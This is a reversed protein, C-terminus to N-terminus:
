DELRNWAVVSGAAAVIVLLWEGILRGEFSLPLVSKAADNTDFSELYAIPNVFNLAVVLDHLLWPLHLSSLGVLLLGFAWILGAFLGGHGFITGLARVVAYLAFAFGLGLVLLTWVDADFAIAHLGMASLPVLEGLLFIILFAAIIGATDVALYNLAFRTRSVPKTLSLAARGREQSFFSGAVSGVIGTVYGAILFLVSLVPQHAGHDAALGRHPGSSTFFGLLALGVVAAVVITLTVIMRRNRLYEVYAM